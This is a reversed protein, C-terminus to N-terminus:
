SLIYIFHIFSIVCETLDVENQHSDSHQNYDKTKYKHATASAVLGNEVVIDEAHAANLHCGYHAEEAEDRNYIGYDFLRLVFLSNLPHLQRLQVLWAAPADEQAKLYTPATSVVAGGSLM